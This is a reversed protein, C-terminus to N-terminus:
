MIEITGVKEKRIACLDAEPLCVKGDCGPYVEVGDADKAGNRIRPM